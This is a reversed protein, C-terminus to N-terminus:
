DMGFVNAHIVLWYASDQQSRQWFSFSMTCDLIAQMYDKKKLFTYM